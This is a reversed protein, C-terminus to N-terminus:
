LDGWAVNDILMNQATQVRIAAANGTPISTTTATAVVVGNLKATLNSGSVELRIVDGAVMVSSMTIFSGLTTLAGGVFRELSVVSNGGGSPVPSFRAGLFNTGTGDTRACLHFQGSTPAGGAYVAEVYMDNTDTLQTNGIMAVSANSNVKLQGSALAWAGQINTWGGGLVTSGATSTTVDARAFTDTYTKGAPATPTSNVATSQASVNSAADYAAVTFAYSTGNSLGTALYNTTTSTGVQTGNVYIRYGAVGVADTSATWTLSVQTNGPTAALGTPVTPATTDAPAAPTATAPSSQASVNNAADRAAVTFTYLVGNTLGTATYSNTSPTGVQTGNIYVLYGTVGVADTSATWSL